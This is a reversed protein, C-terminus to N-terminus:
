LGMLKNVFGVNYVINAGIILSFTGTLYRLIRNISPIKTSFAFPLGLLGSILSMGIISGAGFFLIFTLIMGANDLTVATLVILSGSGALGHVCGILYSKHGHKHDTDHHDHPDCHITGDHHQHPHMHRFRILKRNLITTIALFILMIGVAFELSSFIQQEIRIALVYVLLGMLVLTTTHGAGWFAGLISSKLAGSKFLQFKTKQLFRGKSVQTGVAAVHDPEFAHELGISLGLGVIFMPSLEGIQTLFEEM